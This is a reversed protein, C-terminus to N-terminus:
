MQGLTGCTYDKLLRNGPKFYNTDFHFHYKGKTTETVQLANGGRYYININDKRIELDLSNDRKVYNLLNQLGSDEKLANLFAIQLLDKRFSM